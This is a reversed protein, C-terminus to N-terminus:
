GGTNPVARTASVKCEGARLLLGGVLLPGTGVLPEVSLGQGAVRRSDPMVSPTV